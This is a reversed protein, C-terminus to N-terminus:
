IFPNIHETSSVFLVMLLFPSFHICLFSIGLQCIRLHFGPFFESGFSSSPTPSINFKARVLFLTKVLSVSDHTNKKMLNFHNVNIRATRFCNRQFRHHRDFSLHIYFSTFGKASRWLVFLPQRNRLSILESDHYRAAFTYSM